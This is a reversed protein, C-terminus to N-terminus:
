NIQSTGQYNQTTFIFLNTTSFTTELITLFEQWFTTALILLFDQYRACKANVGVIKIIVIGTGLILFM